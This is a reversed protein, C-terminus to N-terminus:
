PMPPGAPLFGSVPQPIFSQPTGNRFSADNMWMMRTPPVVPVIPVASPVQAFGGDKAQSVEPSYAYRLADSTECLKPFHADAIDECLSWVVYMFYLILPSWFSTWGTNLALGVVLSALMYYLYARLAYEIRYLAAVAGVIAFPMGLLAVAGLVASKADVGEADQIEGARGGRGVM